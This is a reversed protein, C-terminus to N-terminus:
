FTNFIRDGADGLGPLIYGKENLERDVFATYISIKPYLKLVKEVGEPASLISFIKISEEKVSYSKLIEVSACISGGTALMPDLIFCDSRDPNEPVRSYYQVPKLTEHDRYFGLHAVTADPIFYLFGGTMELGARLIPFLIVNQKSPVPFEATEFPTKITIESISLEKAAELSLLLSIDYVAKRFKEPSTRSDRMVALSQLVFPHKVITLPM